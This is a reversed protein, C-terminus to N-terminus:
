LRGCRASRGRGREEVAEGAHAGGGPPGARAGGRLGGPRCHHASPPLFRAGGAPHHGRRPHAPDHEGPPDPLVADRPAGPHAHPAGEVGRGGGAGGPQAVDGGRHLGADGDLLSVGGDRAVSRLRFGAHRRPGALRVAGGSVLRRDGGEARRPRRDGDGGGAAAARLRLRDAAGSDRFRQAGQPAAGRVAGGVGGHDRLRRAQRE